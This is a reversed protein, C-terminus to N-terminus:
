VSVNINSGIRENPQPVSQILQIAAQGEIKTLANVVGQVGAQASAASATQAPLPSVQPTSGIEM